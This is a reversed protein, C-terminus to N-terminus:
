LISLHKLTIEARSSSRLETGWAGHECSCTFRVEDPSFGRASCVCAHVNMHKCVHM